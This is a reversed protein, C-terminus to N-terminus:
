SSLSPNNFRETDPLPFCTSSGYSGGFPFPEGPAPHLPLDYRKLDMLHHSELFLEARREYIIQDMIEGEDSSEFDPLDARDHLENILSVADEPRNEALATEAMILAAEPWGALRVPDDLSNYKSTTWLPVDYGAVTRGEDTVPVRPDPVGDFSMDLYLEGIGVNEDRRNSRYQRNHTADNLASYELEFNFDEPVDAVAAGADTVQGLNLLARATGIRALNLFDDQGSSEAASMAQQFREVALGFADETSQEPGNDFAVSCMSEGMLLYSYGAWAAARAELEAKNPVQEEGWDDLRTLMEDAFWRSRSLPIYLAANGSECDAGAYSGSGYGGTTWTRGDYFVQTGGNQVSRLETGVLGSVNVYHTFACRFENGVSEVLLEAAAPDEMDRAIVRSPAEVELLQDLADCGALVGISLLAVGAAWPSRSFGRPRAGKSGPKLDDIRNQDM